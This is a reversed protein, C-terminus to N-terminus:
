CVLLPTKDVHFPTRPGEHTRMRFEPQEVQEVPRRPELPPLLLPVPDPTQIRIWLSLNELRGIARFFRVQKEVAQVKRFGCRGPATSIKLPCTCSETSRCTRLVIKSIDVRKQIAM